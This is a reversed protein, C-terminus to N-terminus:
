EERKKQVRKVVSVIVFLFFVVILFSLFLFWEEFSDKGFHSLRPLSCYKRNWLGGVTFVDVSRWLFDLRKSLVLGCFCGHTLAFGDVVNRDSMSVTLIKQTESTGWDSFVNIDFCGLILFQTRKPILSVTHSILVIFQLTISKEPSPYNYNKICSLCGYNSNFMKRRSDM